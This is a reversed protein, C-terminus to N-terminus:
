KGPEIRIKSIIVEPQIHGEFWNFLIKFDWLFVKKSINIWVSVNGDKGRLVYIQKKM